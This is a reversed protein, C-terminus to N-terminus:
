RLKKFEGNALISSVNFGRHRNLNIVSRLKTIVINIKRDPLVEITGFHINRSTTVLFPIKNVFMIDIALTVQKHAKMIEFPVLLVNTNVYPKSRFNTKGKLAGLNEGFIDTATRIDDVTM